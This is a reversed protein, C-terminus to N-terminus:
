RGGYRAELLDMVETFTLDSDRVEARTSPDRRGLRGSEMLVLEFGWQDKVGGNALIDVCAKCFYAGGFGSRAFRIDLMAVVWAPLEARVPHNDPDGNLIAKENAASILQTGEPDILGMIHPNHSGACVNVNFGKGRLYAAVAYTPVDGGGTEGDGDGYGYLEFAEEWQFKVKM